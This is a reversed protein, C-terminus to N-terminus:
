PRGSEFGMESKMKMRKAIDPLLLRKKFVTADCNKDAEILIAKLGDVNTFYESLGAMMLIQYSDRALVMANPWDSMSVFKPTEFQSLYIPILLAFFLM